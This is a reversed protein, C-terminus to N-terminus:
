TKIQRTYDGLPCQQLKDGRVVPDVYLPIWLWAGRTDCFASVLWMDLVSLYNGVLRPRQNVQYLKWRARQLFDHLDCQTLQAWRQCRFTVMHELMWLVARHRQPSWLKFQPRYLWEEPILWPDIPLMMSLLHRLWYWLRFGEGCELLRHPITDPM